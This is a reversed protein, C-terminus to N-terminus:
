IKTIKESVLRSKTGVPFLTMAKILLQTEEVSWQCNANGDGSDLENDKGTLGLAHNRLKQNEREIHDNLNQVFRRFIDEPKVGNTAGVLQANLDKLEDLSLTQCLRDADAM